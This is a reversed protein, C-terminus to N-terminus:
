CDTESRTLNAASIDYVSVLESTKNEFSLGDVHENASDMKARHKETRSKEQTAHWMEKELRAEEMKEEHERAKLQM